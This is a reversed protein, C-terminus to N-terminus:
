YIMLMPLAEQLDAAQREVEPPQPKGQRNIWVSAIGAARAGWVDNSVSDGLHVVEEPALGFRRLALAFIEGRPKYSRADESTVSGAPNLGHFYLARTLDSTDINSVIVVPVPCGALFAKTDPFIPPREWFSFQPECLAAADEPSGFRTLTDRLSQRELDRQTRFGGGFSAACLASFRRWWYAAVDQPSAACTRCIHAVIASIVDDDEAALTGYFDCFITKIM